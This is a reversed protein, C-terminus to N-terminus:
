GRSPSGLAIPVGVSTVAVLANDLPTGPMTTIVILLGFSGGESALCSRTSLGSCHARRPGYSGRKRVRRAMWALSLVMLLPLGLMAGAVGKALATHTVDPTFDVTIPEYRSDDVRGNDLYTNILATSAEPQVTWFSSSHGLGPIVLEKGKTLHPLLERTANQPPTAFDLEGGILLTEVDSTRVRDYEQLTTGPWADVLQGGSWILDNGPSGFITGREGSSYHREAVEDDAAGISALEGWNFSEPFALDGMLSAFWLGSADGKDASIWSNLISPASLVELRRSRPSWSASSPRRGFTARRSSCSGWATPIDGNVRGITAVLDDTRASCTEDKACLTAYRHFQEETTKADWVFRGPPNVGIMVSRHVSEPYRWAYVMAYRTGASESVLNIRDYGLAKRATEM